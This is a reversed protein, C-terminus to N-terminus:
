VIEDMERFTIIYVRFKMLAHKVAICRLAHLLFYIQSVNLVCWVGCDFCFLWKSKFKKDNKREKSGENCTKRAKNKRKSSLEGNRIKRVYEALENEYAEQDNKDFV